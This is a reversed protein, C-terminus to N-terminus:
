DNDVAKSAAVCADLWLEVDAELWGVAREGLSISQPFNGKSMRLYITSRSLGTMKMVEPLRVIQHSM